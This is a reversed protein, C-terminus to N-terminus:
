RACQIVGEMRDEVAERRDIVEMNLEGVDKM